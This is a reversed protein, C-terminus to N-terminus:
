GASRSQVTCHSEGSEHALPCTQTEPHHTPGPTALQSLSPVGTLTSAEIATEGSEAFGSAAGSGGSARSIQECPQEFPVQMLPTHVISQEAGPEHGLSM